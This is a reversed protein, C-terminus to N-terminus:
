TAECRCCGQGGMVLVIVDLDSGCIKQRLSPLNNEDVYSLRKKLLGLRERAQPLDERHLGAVVICRIEEGCKKSVASKNLKREIKDVDTWTTFEVGIQGEGCEAVCDVSLDDPQGSCRTVEDDSVAGLYRRAENYDLLSLGSIRVFKYCYCPEKRLLFRAVCPCDVVRMFSATSIEM